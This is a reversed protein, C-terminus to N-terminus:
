DLLGGSGLYLMNNAPGRKIQRGKADWSHILILRCGTEPGRNGQM